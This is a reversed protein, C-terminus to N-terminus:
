LQTIAYNRLQTIAYNCCEYVCNWLDFTNVIASAYPIYVFTYSTLVLEYENTIIIAKDKRTSSVLHTTIESTYNFSLYLSDM